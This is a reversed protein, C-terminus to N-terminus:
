SEFWVCFCSYIWLVVLQSGFATVVVFSCNLFLTEVLYIGCSHLSDWAVVGAKATQSSPIHKTNERSGVGLELRLDADPSSAVTPRARYHRMLVCSLPRRPAQRVKQAPQMWSVPFIWNMM